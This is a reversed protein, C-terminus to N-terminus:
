EVSNKLICENCRNKGCFEKAFEVIHAHTQRYVMNDEPLIREFLDKLEPGKEIIGQVPVFGTPIHM